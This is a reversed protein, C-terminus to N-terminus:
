SSIPEYLFLGAQGPLLHRERERGLWLVRARILDPLESRAINVREWLDPLEKSWDTILYCGRRGPRLYRFVAEGNRDIVYLGGASIEARAAGSTELVAIDFGSLTSHM